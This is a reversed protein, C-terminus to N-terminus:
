ARCLMWMDFEVM